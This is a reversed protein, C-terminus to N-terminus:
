GGDAGADWMCRGGPHIGLTYVCKGNNCCNDDRSCMEYSTTACCNTVNSSDLHCEGCCAAGPFYDDACAEGAALCVCGFAHANNVCVGSMGPFYTACSAGPAFLTLESTSADPFCGDCEPGAPQTSVLVFGGDIWCGPQCGGDFIVGGDCPSGNGVLPTMANNCAGVFALGLTLRLSFLRRRRAGTASSSSALGPTRRGSCAADFM